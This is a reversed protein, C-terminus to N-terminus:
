FIYCLCVCTHTHTHTHTTYVILFKIQIKGISVYKSRLVHVTPVSFPKLRVKMTSTRDFCSEDFHQSCLTTYNVNKDSVKNMNCFNIWARKQNENKPFRHFTIGYNRASTTIGCARCHVM